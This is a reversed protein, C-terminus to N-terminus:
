LNMLMFNPNEIYTKWANSCRALTAGDIIRHDAAWSATLIHCKEVDGKENIIPTLKAKGLALICVEPPLILPRLYTGGIIGINSITITGGSMDSIGLKLARGDELLKNLYKGIELVSLSQVKKINPVILGSPTDMAVGINHQSKYTIHECNEDVSANLEPFDELAKSLAKIFFPMLSLNVGKQEAYQKVENRLKMLNTVNIDDSYGFTPISHSKTMTKVMTKKVGTIEIKKDFEMLSKQHIQPSPETIEELYNLIDGKLVRGGKGTAKVSGLDVNNEKAIRRVAPTTLVKNSLHSQHVNEVTEERRIEEVQPLSTDKKMEEENRSTEKKVPQDSLSADEVIDIDVLPMGVHAVEGIDYYLKKVTGDFRSTISVSAKDSEVLCVNDFQSIHDGVKVFWDKVTVERIGEGIDSLKFQVIKYFVSSTHFFTKGSLTKSLSQVTGLFKSAM